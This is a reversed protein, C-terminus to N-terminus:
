SLTVNGNTFVNGTGNYTVGGATYSFRDGLYRDTIDVQAVQTTGVFLLMSAPLSAGTSRANFRMLDGANGTLTVTAAAVPTGTTAVTLTTDYSPPPTVPPTVTPITFTYTESPLGQAFLNFSLQFVQDLQISTNMNAVGFVGTVTRGDALEAQVYIENGNDGAPKVVYRYCNDRQHVWGSVQFEASIQTPRQENGLGSKQSRISILNTNKNYDMNQVGLLEMLAYTSCTAANAPNTDATTPQIKISATGSTITQVLNATDNNFVTVTKSGSFPLLLGDELILPRGASPAPSISVALTTAGVTPATSVTLTYLIPTRSNPPLAVAKITNNVALISGSPHLDNVPM